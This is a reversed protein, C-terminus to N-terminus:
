DLCRKLIAQSCDPKISLFVGSQSIFDTPNLTIVERVLLRLSDKLMNPSALLFAAQETHPDSLLHTRLHEFLRGPFVIERQM